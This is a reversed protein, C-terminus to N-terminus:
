ATTKLYVTTKWVLLRSSLPSVPAQPFVWERHALFCINGERHIIKEQIIVVGEVSMSLFFFDLTKESCLKFRRRYCKVPNCCEFRDRVTWWRRTKEYTRREEVWKVTRKYLNSRCISISNVPLCYRYQTSWTKPSQATLLGM